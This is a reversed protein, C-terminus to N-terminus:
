AAKKKLSKKKLHKLRFTDERGREELANKIYTVHASLNPVLNQELANVRRGTKKIEQGLRKLHVEVSAIDLILNFIVEFKEAVCDVRGSVGTISYGREQMSRRLDLGMKNVEPVEVGWVIKQTIEVSVNRKGALAASNLTKTGDIGKAIMLARYADHAISELEDRSALLVQVIAFFEKVLADRKKKLLDVGQKALKIQGKKALMNMRTPSVQEM